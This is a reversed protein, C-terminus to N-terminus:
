FEFTMGGTILRPAQPAASFGVGGEAFGPHYYRVDTLNSINIFFARTLNAQRCCRYQLYLNTVTYPDSSQRNGQADKLQNYSRGQYILRPSVTLRRNKFTLGAKVSHKASYPLPEGAIDGNSCTFAGYYNLTYNQYNKLADLRVTGGYARANGLNSWHALTDVPKGKFIGAGLIVGGRQMDSIHSNYANVTARLNESFSYTFESQLSSIKEPKLDPNAINMYYSKIDGPKGPDAAFTGFHAYTKDPPPALFATGCMLKINTKDGPKYVIGVRPNFSSGYLSNKDYRAGFIYQTASERNLHLQAYGGLNTYRIKYFEQPIGQPAIVSLDSGPYIYGQSGASRDPDFPWALDATRPLSSHEQWTLGVMLLRDDRLHYSFREEIDTSEDRAYKYAAQYGSFNNFFRSQPDLEYFHHSIQSQLQWRSNAARYIHRGYVTNYHTRFIADKNYLTYEPRVGTSSSHSETMRIVGIELNELNLRFHLFDSEEDARWPRFAVATEAASGPGNLVRGAQFENNYWAYEDPYHKPMFHGRSRFQHATFAVASEDQLFLGSRTGENIVAGATVAIDRTSNEAFGLDIRDNTMEHGSRTVINIVGSFVDAGYLASMPGLIIEVQRANSLSFQRGMAYLNGTVPTVRIGDIMIQFREVGNMGQMAVTNGHGSESNRTIQIQPIDELLDLLNSYGRDRITDGSIVYANAPSDSPKEKVASATVIPVNLLDELTLKELLAANAGRSPLALSGSITLLALCTLVKLNKM